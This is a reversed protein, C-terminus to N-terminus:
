PLEIMERLSRPQAGFWPVLKTSKSEFDYRWYNCDQNDDCLGFFIFGDAEFFMSREYDTGPPQPPTLIDPLRTTSTLDWTVLRDNETGETLGVGFVKSGLFRFLGVTPIGLRPLEFSDITNGDSAEALFPRSGNTSSKTFLFTDGNEHWGGGRGLGVLTPTLPNTGLDTFYLKKDQNNTLFLGEDNPGFHMFASAGFGDGLNTFVSEQQRLDAVYIFDNATFGVFGGSESVRLARPLSTLTAPVVEEVELLAQEDFKAVHVSYRNPGGSTHHVSFAMTSGDESFVPPAARAGDLSLQISSGWGEATRPHIVLVRDFASTQNQLSWAAGNPSVGFSSLFQETASSAVVSRPFTPVSLDRAILQRVNDAANSFNLLFRGDATMTLESPSPNVDDLGSTTLGNRGIITQLLSENHVSGFVRSGDQAFFSMPTTSSSAFAAGPSPMIGGPFVRAVLPRPEGLLHGSILLRFRESEGCDVVINDIDRPYSATGSGGYVVCDQGPISPQTEVTVEFNADQAIAVPFEWQGDSPIPISQGDSNELVLGAGEVGYAHVILNIDADCVVQIGDYDEKAIAGHGFRVDCFQNPSTPQQAVYSSFPAGTEFGRHFQFAGNDTLTVTTTESLAMVVSGGVLGSVTGGVRYGELSADPAADPAMVMSADSPQADASSADILPQPASDQLVTADSGCASLGQLAAITFSRVLLAKM